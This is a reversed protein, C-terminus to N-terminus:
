HLTLCNVVSKDVSIQSVSPRGHISRTDTLYRCVTPLTDILYRGLTSSVLVMDTSVCMRRCVCGDIHQGISSRYNASARGISSRCRASDRDIHQGLLPRCKTSTEDSHRNIYISRYRRGVSGITFMIRDM